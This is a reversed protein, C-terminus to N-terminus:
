ARALEGPRMKPQCLEGYLEIFALRHHRLREQLGARSSPQQGRDLARRIARALSEADGRAFVEAKLGYDELLEPLGGADSVVLPRGLRAAEVV